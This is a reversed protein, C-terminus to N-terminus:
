EANLRQRRGHWDTGDDGRRLEAWLSRAESRLLILRGRNEHLANQRQTQEQRLASLAPEVRDLEEQAADLSERQRELRAALDRRRAEAQAIKAPMEERERQRGFSDLTRRTVGGAISGYPRLLLGD